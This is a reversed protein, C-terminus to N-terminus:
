FSIKPGSHVFRCLPELAGGSDSICTMLTGASLPPVMDFISANMMKTSDSEDMELELNHAFHVKFNKWGEHFRSGVCGSLWSDVCGSRRLDVYGCTRSTNISGHAM